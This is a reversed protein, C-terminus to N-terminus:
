RMIRNKLFDAGKDGKFVESVFTLMQDMHASKHMLMKSLEAFNDQSLPFVFHVIM